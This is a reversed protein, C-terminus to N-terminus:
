QSIIKKKKERNNRNRKNITIIEFNNIYFLLSELYNQENSYNEKIYEIGKLGMLENITETGRFHRLCQTFTINFLKQFYSKKEEDKENMLSYVLNKNHDYPFITFRSSIKNSFIDKLTKNLFEKNFLVTADCKQKQNMILLKKEFIGHGINNNYKERIKNNIFKMLEDIIIHKIKRRLNDDSFKNHEGSEKSKRTKRGLKPTDKKEETKEENGLILSNKDINLNLGKTAKTPLDCTKKNSINNNKEDPNENPQQIYFYLDSYEKDEDNNIIDNNNNFNNNFEEFYNVSDSFIKIHNNNKYKFNIDIDIDIDNYAHLM